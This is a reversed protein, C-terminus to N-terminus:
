MSKAKLYRGISGFAVLSGVLLILLSVLGLLFGALWELVRM